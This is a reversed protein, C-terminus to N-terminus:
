AGEPPQEEPHPAREVMRSSATRMARSASSSYGSAWGGSSGDQRLEMVSWGWMKGDYGNHGPLEYVRASFRGQHSWLFRGDSLVWGPELDDATIPTREHNFHPLESM